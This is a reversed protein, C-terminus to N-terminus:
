NWLQREQLILNQGYKDNQAYRLIRTGTMGSRIPFGAAGKGQGYRRFGTDLTEQEEKLSLISKGTRRKQNMIYYIARIVQTRPPLLSLTLM